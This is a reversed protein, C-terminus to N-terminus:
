PKVNNGVHRHRLYLRPVLDGPQGRRAIARTFLRPLLLGGASLSKRECIAGSGFPLQERAASRWPEFVDFPEGRRLRPLFQTQLTLIPEDSQAAPAEIQCLGHM